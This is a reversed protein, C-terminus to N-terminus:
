NKYIRKSGVGEETQIRLIYVGANLDNVNLELKSQNMESFLVRQGLLNYVEVYEPNLDAGLSVQLTENVPNPNIEFQEDRLLDDAGTTMGNQFFVSIPEEPLSIDIPTGDVGVAAVVSIGVTFNEGENEARGDIIDGDIIFKATAVRGQGSINLGNKRAIVIDTQGDYPLNRYFPLAEDTIDGFFSSENYDFDVPSSEEVYHKPYTLYLVVGYVEEMPFDSSGFNLGANIELYQNPSTIVVTDVDFSLSIPVGNSETVSVGNDLMVYNSQIGAIDAVGITGDGNCDFHKYNIGTSTEMTWDEAPQAEWEISMSDRPPGTMGFGVGINVLDELDAKGDGNTDGPWVCGLLDCPDDSVIVEVEASYDDLCEDTNSNWVTLIVTYTGSEEYFHTVSGSTQSDYSGDGFDWSWDTYAGESLNEFTIGGVNPLQGTYEAFTFGANCTANANQAMALSLICCFVIQINRLFSRM